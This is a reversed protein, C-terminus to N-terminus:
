KKQLLATLTNRSIGFTRAIARYSMRENVSQLIAGQQEPTLSRPKPNQTFTKKCTLCRFRQTGSDNSGHKALDTGQCAPCSLAHLAM